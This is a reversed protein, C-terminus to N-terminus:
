TLLSIFRSTKYPMYSTNSMSISNKALTEDIPCLLTLKKITRTMAVFLLRKEAELASKSKDEEKRILPMVGDNLGGIFVNLFESGKAEHMTLIQLADEKNQSPNFSKVILMFLREVTMQTSKFYELLRIQSLGSQNLIAANSSLLPSFCKYSKMAELISCVTSQPSFSNRIMDSVIPINGLANNESTSNKLTTLMEFTISPIRSTLWQAIEPQAQPYPTYLMGKVISNQINLPFVSICQKNALLLYGLLMAIPKHFVFSKSKNLYYPINNDLLMLEYLPFANKERLILCNDLLLTEENLAKVLPNRKDFYREIEISAYTNEQVFHQPEKNEYNFLKYALSSLGESFRYNGQLKFSLVDNLILDLNRFINSNSGRFENISQDADGVMILKTNSGLHNRVMAFDIESLDQSEDILIYDYKDKLVRSEVSNISFVEAPIAVIENIPIIGMDIKQETIMEYAKEFVPNTLRELASFHSIGKIEFEVNRKLTVFTYFSELTQQNIHHYKSNAFKSNADKLVQRFWRQLYIDSMSAVHARKVKQSSCLQAYLQYGYSHLTKIQINSVSINKLQSSFKDKAANSFMLVLIREEDVGEGLRQKIFNILLTSKGSGPGSEVKLHRNTVNIIAQKEQSINM